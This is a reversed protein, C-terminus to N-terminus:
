RECIKKLENVVKNKFGAEVLKEKLLSITKVPSPDINRLVALYISTFDGIYIASLMKALSSEGISHIEYIKETAKSIMEKTAEIRQKVEESENRDRIFLTSFYDAFDNATEWGMIENHDLEPFFDWKAPIKSNENFQQKYRMAVARYIGFGYIIPITRNIRAALKKSFNDELPIEPSNEDRVRELVKAAESIESVAESILGIKELIVLLPLSLYPLAARPPMGSPVCLYPLELKKTFELLRGGSSICIVMSDRKVADLFMSLAEETEGSYSIVFVMTKGNAYAPLSYSRCVEVPVAIMNRAWDKLLEGGIASGGAGSIILTKPKPYDIEVAEALDLATRCHRSAKICFSLMDSRDIKRIEDPDNLISKSM